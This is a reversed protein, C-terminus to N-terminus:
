EEDKFKDRTESALADNLSGSRFGRLDLTVYRYGLERLKEDIRRAIDQDLGKSLELPDIEIRALNEHHRVRFNRFGLERLYAEALEVQKLKVEDIGVGYPLRSSLCPMAPLDWTPLGYERSLARIQEKRFGLELLPSRVGSETAAQRGPRFDNADDANCGDLIVGIKRTKRLEELRVYLEAKCFYCRNAPNARYNDDSFEETELFEHRLRYRRVFKEVLDIQYQSVSPSLATVSCARGGLVRQAMFALYSSDVGGSFAVLATDHRTLFNVLAKERRRLVM